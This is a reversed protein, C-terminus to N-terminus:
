FHNKNNCFSLINFSFDYGAQMGAKVVLDDWEDSSFFSILSLNLDACNWYADNFTAQMCMLIKQKFSEKGFQRLNVKQSSMFAPRGM